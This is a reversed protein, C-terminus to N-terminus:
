KSAEMHIVIGAADPEKPAPPPTETKNGRTVQEFKRDAIDKATPENKKADIALNAKVKEAEAFLDGQIPLGGAERVLAYALDFGQRKEADWSLYKLATDFAVKHIGMAALEERKAQIDANISKGEGRKENVFAIAERIKDMTETLNHGISPHEKSM